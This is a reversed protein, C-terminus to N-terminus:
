ELLLSAVVHLGRRATGAIRPMQLPGIAHIATVLVALVSLTTSFNAGIPRRGAKLMRETLPVEPRAVCGAEPGYASLYPLKSYTQSTKENEPRIM